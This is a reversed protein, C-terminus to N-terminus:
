NIKRLMRGCEYAVGLINTKQPIQAIINYIGRTPHRGPADLM